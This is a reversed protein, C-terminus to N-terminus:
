TPKSGNGGSGISIPTICSFYHIVLAERVMLCRSIIILVKEEFNMWVHTMAVFSCSISVTGGIAAHGATHPKSKYCQWAESYNASVFCTDVYTSNGNQISTPSFDRSLCYDAYNSTRNMHLTLNAFPGDTVCLDDGTGTGGFGTDPDFVASENFAIGAAIDETTSLEDWYPQAGTYNCETQLLIEHARMYLRHWPLFSGTDHVVNTQVIHSYHLEDWRTIAGEITGTKPPSSILCLEAEIYAQKEESTLATRSRFDASLDQRKNSHSVCWSKRQSLSACAETDQRPILHAQACSSAVLLGSLVVNTSSLHM